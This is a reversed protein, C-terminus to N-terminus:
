RIRPDYNGHQWLRVVEGRSDVEFTLEEGLSEDSRIRQFTHGEIHKLRVLDEMPDATPFNVMALSGKWRIVQREGGWPYQDYAGVYIDLEVDDDDTSATQGGSTAGAEKQAAKVAPAIIEYARRTFNSPNVNANTMVITGIKDDMHLEFNSQYGPCNGGHGVFTQDGRRTIRFGLGWSVEWDPDMYHVRQMERLTNPDLIEHRGSELLRFQWSAFRALDEVTSAFGAAAAIGDAAWPEVRRRVGERTMASYGTALRETGNVDAIDPVTSTLGLPELLHERVYTGYAQQSVEAVIEGVLTLGLNSYQFYKWAPYLTEQNSIGEIIKERTPFDFPATWYSDDSERPIGASHTMLGEVTVPPGGPDPNPLTFWPLLGRVEDDLRFKGEDRLQMASVSTFLKSISCISYMTAPTAPRLSAVDAYGFGASWLVEQDHVVAVSIGPIQNYAQQAGIWRELLIIAEAVGPDEALTQAHAEAVIVVGLLGLLGGLTRSHVPLLM